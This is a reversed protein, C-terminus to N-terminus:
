ICLGCILAVLLAGVVLGVKIMMKELDENTLNAYWNKIKKFM